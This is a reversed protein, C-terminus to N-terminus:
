PRLITQDFMAPISRNQIDPTNTRVCQYTNKGKSRKRILTKVQVANIMM